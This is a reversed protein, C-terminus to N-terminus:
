PQQFQLGPVKRTLGFWCFVHLAKGPMLLKRGCGMKQLQAWGSAVAGLPQKGDRRARHGPGPVLGSSQLQSVTGCM